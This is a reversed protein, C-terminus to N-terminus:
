HHHHNIMKPNIYIKGGKKSIGKNLSVHECILFSSVDENSGKGRYEVNKLYKTKYIGLGGFASQVLIPEDDKPINKVRKGQCYEYNKGEHDKCYVFDFQMWDDYTRLAWLDYYYGTQNATMAAWELNDYEFSSLFAEKTLGHNVEDLDIVIMYEVEKELVKKLLINRGHALRETRDGTVGTETIIEVKDNKSKWEYLKKLTNDNSDNEYIIIYYKDFLSSIMDIIEITKDLHSSIDRATGVIAVSSLKINEINEVINHTKFIYYSAYIIVLIILIYLLITGNQTHIMGNQKHIMGNQKHIM